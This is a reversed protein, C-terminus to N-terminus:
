PAVTGPKTPSMKSTLWEVPCTRPSKTEAKVYALV